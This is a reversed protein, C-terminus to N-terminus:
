GRVCGFAEALVVAARSLDEDTTTLPPLLKVVSSAAGCVEVLLGRDFAAKSVARAEAEAACPLGLMLGRGCVSDLGGSRLLDALLAGKRVVDDSFAHDTWWTRLAAEGAVFSLDPGRFTGSHEGPSWVDLADRVLVLALPLGGGISKSLCVIDPTITAPESSFFTGTRGCGAQVDDLIVVAGANRALVSAARAVEHAIERIGGEGQVLELLLAAPPDGENLAREIGAITMAPEGVHVTTRTYEAPSLTPRGAIPALDSAAAADLTMGHFSGDLTIIRRRGTAKRALRLSAEVAAAGSPSTFQVLHTDLRRPKLIYESLADMFRERADTWMDLSSTVGNNNLYDVLAGNIQRPNHGYNLSGAAAFFDLYTRGASDELRSGYALRFTAPWLRSYRRVRSELAPQIV